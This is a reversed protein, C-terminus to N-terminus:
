VVAWRGWRGEGAGRGVEGGRGWEKGERFARGGHVAMYPSLTLIRRGIVAGWSSVELLLPPSM